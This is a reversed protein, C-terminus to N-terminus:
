QLKCLEILVQAAKTMQELSAWEMRSHYNHGGTFINPTPIGMECLRSGDTGGRIPIIQPSVGANKYAELLNQVVHPHKDITQKMNLYQMTNKVTVTGGFISEATKALQEVLNLKEKIGSETFDRVILNVEASEITGNVGMAAIFGMYGDSTEPRATHPISNLFWAAMSVANVMEPRASGTHISKGKFFVESKYANFCEIELEGIHGGDVTYCQRSKILNLPVNDMGHGTEEDPSFLVEILGHEINNKKIYNLGTIIEAIGAKDDAGLLTTGDTCIITEGAKGSEKLASDNEPDLIIGEKLRIPSGDYNEYVQPNVNLGTVEEVTDIHASFCIAPASEKGKTAELQGYVYFHETLCVNTFGLSELEKKLIKAFDKQQETSPQIGNDAQISDSQSYIKTYRLFRELLEKKM